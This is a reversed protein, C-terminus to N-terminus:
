GRALCACLVLPQFRHSMPHTYNLLFEMSVVIVVSITIVKFECYCGAPKSHLAHQTKRSENPRKIRILLEKVTYDAVIVIMLMFSPNLWNLFGSLPLRTTPQYKIVLNRFVDYNYFLELDRTFVM